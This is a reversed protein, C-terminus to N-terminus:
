VWSLKVSSMVSAGQCGSGGHREDSIVLGDYDLGDMVLGANGGCDLGDM